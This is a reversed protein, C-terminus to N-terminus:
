VINEQWKLANLKEQASYATKYIKKVKKRSM